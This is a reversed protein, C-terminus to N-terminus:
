LANTLGKLHALGEDTIQSGRLRLYELNKLGELHAMGADTILGRVKEDAGGYLDLRRLQTLKRLHVLGADTCRNLPLVVDRLNPLYELPRLCADTAGLCLVKIIPGNEGDRGVSFTVKLKTLEAIARKEEANQAMSFSHSVLTLFAVLAARKKM